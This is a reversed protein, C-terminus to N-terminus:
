CLWLNVKDVHMHSALAAGATPGFGSIVNLVGEPLGAQWLLSTILSFRVPNMMAALVIGCSNPVLWNGWSAASSCVFCFTSDTRRDKYCCHQRLSPCPRDEMRADAFSLEMSHDSWGCWDAWAFNSCSLAWRGAFYARSDQGGLRSFLVVPDTLPTMTWFSARLFMSSTIYLSGGAYYRFLRVIMPLETKAAQEYPKGNDWTELAALEDNHKELLDAFRLLVKSREQFFSDWRNFIVHM